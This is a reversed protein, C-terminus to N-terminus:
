TKTPNSSFVAAPEPYTRVRLRSTIHNTVRNLDREVSIVDQLESHVSVVPLELVLFSYLRTFKLTYNQVDTWFLLHHRLATHTDGDEVVAGHGHQPGSVPSRLGWYCVSLNWWLNMKKERWTEGPARYNEKRVWRESRIEARRKWPRDTQKWERHRDNRRDTGKM